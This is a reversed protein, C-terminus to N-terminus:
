LRIAFNPAVLLLAHGRDDFVVTRTFGGGFSYGSAVLVRNHLTSAATGSLLFSGAAAGLPHGYILAAAGGVISLVGPAASLIPETKVLGVDAGSLSFAGAGLPMIRDYYFSAGSGVLSFAGPGSQVLSGKLLAASSGVVGFTASSVPMTYGHNLTIASGSFSLAGAGAQLLAGHLLNAPAGVLAFSGAGVQMPYERLLAAPSGVLSYSGSSPALIRNTRLGVTSGTASYSGAGAVLPYKRLLSAAAGSLSLSGNAATLTYATSGASKTLTVADGSLVLAGSAAALLLGRKLTSATGSLSLAGSGAGLVRVLRATWIAKGGLASSSPTLSVNAQTAAAALACYAFAISEDTGQLNRYQAGLGSQSWGSGSLGSWTRPSSGDTSAFSAIGVTQQAVATQGTITWPSSSSVTAASQAVDEAWTDDVTNGSFELVVLTLALSSTGAQTINITAGAADAATWSLWAMQFDGNGTLSLHTLVNPFNVAGGGINYTPTVTGGTSGKLQRIAVYLNGRTLNVTVSTSTGSKTGNDAPNSYVNVLSIAM